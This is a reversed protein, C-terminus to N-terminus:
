TFDVIAILTMLYGFMRGNCRATMIQMAGVGDLARMLPLNKNRWNGPTEGVQILHEDFLSDADRVWSDFDETQFTVGEPPENVKPALATITQHKAISALKEMAPAYASYHRMMAPLNIQINVPAMRAYHDLDHPQQLCHEFVAACTDEENLSDFSVSLVNPLRAEIQDLSRDLKLLIADLKNRDFQTGAIKMLSEAVEDRPRRVVLVRAHPAFKDLLRWWPAGATEATGINPQSFWAQVDDISRMHRLEEHGCMWEGYTLFQSLWASRSRPLSFVVFPPM